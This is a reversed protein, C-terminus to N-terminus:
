LASRSCLKSCHRRWGTMNVVNFPVGFQEEFSAALARCTLDTGGGAGAWLYITVPGSPKWGKAEPAPTSSEPVKEPATSVPVNSEPAKSGEAGACGALLGLVMVMTLALCFIRKKM